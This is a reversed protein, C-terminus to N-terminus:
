DEVNHSCEAENRYPKHAHATQCVNGDFIRKNCNRTEKTSQGVSHGSQVCGKGMM